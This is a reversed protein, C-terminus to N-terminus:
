STEAACGRQLAGLRLFAHLLIDAFFFAFGLGLTRPPESQAFGRLGLGRKLYVYNRLHTKRQNPTPGRRKEAVKWFLTSIWCKEAIQVFNIQGAWFRRGPPHFTGPVDEDMWGLELGSDM